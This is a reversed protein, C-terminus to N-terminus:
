LHAETRDARPRDQFLKHKLTFAGICERHHIADPLRYFHRSQIAASKYDYSPTHEEGAMRERVDIRPGAAHDRLNEIYHQVTRQSHEEIGDIM